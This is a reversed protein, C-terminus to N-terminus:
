EELPRSPSCRPARTVDSWCITDASQSSSLVRAVDGSVSVLRQVCLTDHVGADGGVTYGCGNRCSCWRCAVAPATGFFWCFRPDVYPRFGPSYYAGRDASDISSNIRVSTKSYSYVTHGFAQVGYTASLPSMRLLACTQAVHSFSLFLGADRSMLFADLPLPCRSV